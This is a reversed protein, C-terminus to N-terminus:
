YIRMIMSEVDAFYGAQESKNGVALGVIVKPAKTSKQLYSCLQSFYTALDIGGWSLAFLARMSYVPM